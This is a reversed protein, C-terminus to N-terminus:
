VGSPDMTSSYMNVHSPYINIPDMNGYIAYMSGIPYTYIYIYTNDTYIYIYSIIIHHNRIVTAEWFSM